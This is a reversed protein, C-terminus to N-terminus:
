PCPGPSCKVDHSAGNKEPGPSRGANGRSGKLDSVSLFSEDNANKDTVWVFMRKGDTRVTLVSLFRMNTSVKLGFKRKPVRSGRDCGRTFTYPEADELTFAKDDM